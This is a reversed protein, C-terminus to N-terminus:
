HGSCVKKMAINIQSQIKLQQTVSLALFIYDPDSAFIKTYNLVSESFGYFHEGYFLLLYITNKLRKHSFFNRCFYPKNM